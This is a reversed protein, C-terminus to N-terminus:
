RLGEEPDYADAPNIEALKICAQILEDYSSRFHDQSVRLMISEPNDSAAASMESHVDQMHRHKMAAALVAKRASVIDEKTPSSKDMMECYMCTGDSRLRTSHRWCHTPNEVGERNYRILAKQANTSM